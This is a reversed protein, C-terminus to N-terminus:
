MLGKSRCLQRLQEEKEEVPLIVQGNNREREEQMTAVLLQMVADHQMQDAALEQERTAKKLPVGKIDYGKLCFCMEGVQRMYTQNASSTQEDMYRLLENDQTRDKEAVIADLISNYAALQVPDSQWQERIKQIMNGPTVDAESTYRTKKLRLYVYAIAAIRDTADESFLLNLLKMNTDYNQRTEPTIEGDEGREYNLMLDRLRSSTRMFPQRGAKGMEIVNFYDAHYRLLDAQTKLNVKRYKRISRAMDDAYAQTTPDPQRNADHNQLEQRLADMHGPQQHLREVRAQLEQEMAEDIVPDAMTRAQDMMMQATNQYQTSKRENMTTDVLGGEEKFGHAELYSKTANRVFTYKESAMVSKMYALERPLPMHRNTYRTEEMQLVSTIIMYLSFLGKSALANQYFDPLNDKRYTKENLQLKNLRQYLKAVMTLRLADDQTKFAQISEWNDEYNAKTEETVEGDAKREYPLLIDAWRGPMQNGNAQDLERIDEQFNVQLDLNIATRQDASERIGTIIPEMELVSGTLAILKTVRDIRRRGKSSYYWKKYRLSAYSQLAGSLSRLCTMQKKWDETLEAARDTPDQSVSEKYARAAACVSKYVPSDKEENQDQLLEDIAREMDMINANARIGRAFADRQQVDVLAKGAEKELKEWNSLTGKELFANEYKKYLNASVKAYEDSKQIWDLNVRKKMYDNFAKMKPLANSTELYHGALAIKDAIEQAREDLVEEEFGFNPAAQQAQDQNQEQLNQHQEQMQNQREQQVENAGRPM